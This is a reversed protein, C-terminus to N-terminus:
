LFFIRVCISHELAEASQLEAVLNDMQMKKNQLQSLKARLAEAELELQAANANQISQNESVKENQEELLLVRQAQRAADLRDRVHNQM